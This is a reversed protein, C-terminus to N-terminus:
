NQVAPDQNQQDSFDLAKHKRCKQRQHLRAVLEDINYEVDKAIADKIAWLEEIIEDAM